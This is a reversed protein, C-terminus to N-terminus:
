PPDLAGCGFEPNQNGPACYGPANAGAVLRALQPAATSTGAMRFACGSRTGAGPIGTLAPSEDTPLAHDPGARLPGRTPGLSSYPSGRRNFVQYGAAAHVRPHGSTAMGSFTGATSLLSGASSAADHPLHQAASAGATVEWAKDVFRSQKAGPRAGMNPDSRAVYAHVVVGPCACDLRITWDGHLAPGDAAPTTQLAPATGRTPPIVLLWRADLPNSSEQKVPQQGVYSFPPDLSVTVQGAYPAHVWVEAMVPVPNDPPVRWTWERNLAVQTSVFSVHGASRRSNGSPVVIDLRPKGASGDDFTALAGMFLELEATGNHPGTTQGYSVNVVVRQTVNQQACSMIYRLGDSVQAKLWQGSADNIAAQPIQVFVIDTEPQGPLDTAAAFSPPTRRDMSIRSSTPIRGALVDMVHTGHTARRKLSDFRGQAYCGDEDVNGAASHMGIWGDLGVETLPDSSGAAKGDRWFELGYNFDKPRRGFFHDPQDPIAVPDRPEQDWLAFVRSSPGAGLLKQHAFACGDDIIGILTHASSRPRDPDYRLRRIAVDGRAPRIPLSLTVLSTYDDWFKLWDKSLDLLLAKEIRMTVFGADDETPGVQVEKGGKQARLARRFKCVTIGQALQVLLLLRFGAGKDSSVFYRFGTAIAYRLYPDFSRPCTKRELM